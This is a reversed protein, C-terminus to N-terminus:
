GALPAPKRFIRFLLWGLFVIAALPLLHVVLALLGTVVLAAVGLIGGVLLVPLLLLGFLLKLPLLVVHFALRLPLLVLTLVLKLLVLVFAIAGLALFGLVGLVILGSM